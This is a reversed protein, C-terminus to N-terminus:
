NYMCVKFIRNKFPRMTAYYYKFGVGCFRACVFMNYANYMYYIIYIYIINCENLRAQVEWTMRLYEDVINAYTGFIHKENKKQEARLRNIRIHSCLLM